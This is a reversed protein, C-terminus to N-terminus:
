AIQRYCIVPLRFQWLACLLCESGRGYICFAHVTIHGTSTFLAMHGVHHVLCAIHCSRTGVVSLTVQWFACLMCNSMYHSSHVHRAILIPLTCQSRGHVLLYAIYGTMSHNAMACMASLIVQWSSCSCNRLRDEDGTM